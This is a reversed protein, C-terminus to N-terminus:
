PRQIPHTITFTYARDAHAGARTYTHPRAHKQTDGETHRTQKKRIHRPIRHKEQFPMTMQTRKRSRRTVQARSTCCCAISCAAATTTTAAAAAVIPRGGGRRGRTGGRRRCTGAGTLTGRSHRRRGRYCCRRSVFRGDVSAGARDRAANAHIHIAPHAFHSRIHPMPARARRPRDRLRTGAHGRMNKRATHTQPLTHLCIVLVAQM